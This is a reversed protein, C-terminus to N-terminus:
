RERRGPELRLQETLMADRRPAAIVYLDELSFVHNYKSTIKICDDGSQVRYYSM